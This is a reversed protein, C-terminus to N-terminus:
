RFLIYPALASGSRPMQWTARCPMFAACLAHARPSVGRAARKSGHVHLCPYARVRFPLLAYAAKLMM